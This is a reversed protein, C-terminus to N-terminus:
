LGAKEVTDRKTTLLSALWVTLAGAPLGFVGASVPQIGWWLGNGQLNLFARVASANLGMYGITVGLGVLMGAVAGARTARPWFIGAVMAPFFAAAALSFSASVL